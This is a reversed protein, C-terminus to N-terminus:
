KLINSTAQVVKANKTRPGVAIGIFPAAVIVAAPIFKELTAQTGKFISKLKDKISGGCISATHFHNDKSM